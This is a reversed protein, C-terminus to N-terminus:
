IMSMVRNFNFERTRNMATFYDIITLVGCCGGTLLKLIGMGIDDLLFRDVGLSGLMLSILLNVVPEKLEISVLMDFQGDDLAMLRDKLYYIKDAPFYKKNAIIYMDVKQIDM